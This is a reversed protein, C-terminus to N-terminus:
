MLSCLVIIQKRSRLLVKEVLLSSNRDILLEEEINNFRIDMYIGKSEIPVKIIFLVYNENDGRTGDVVLSTSMYGKEKICDGEKLDLISKSIIKELSDYSIKRFVVINESVKPVSFFARDINYVLDNEVYDSLEDDKSGFRLYSNICHFTNGSYYSLATYPNMGKESKYKQILNKMWDGYLNYSWNNAEKDNSFIIYGKVLDRPILNKLNRITLEKIDSNEDFVENKNNETHIDKKLTCIQENYINMKKQEYIFRGTEELAYIMILSLLIKISNILM